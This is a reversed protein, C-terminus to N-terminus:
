AAKGPRTTELPSGDPKTPFFTYSLTIEQTNKTEQDKILEPDVYYTVAFELSQGPKLTQAQFCFCQLKMFYPGATEPLVNYAAMGTLTKDSLNTVRYFALGTKGIKVTQTSEVPEFKWPLDNRVNADFRVTITRDLVTSAETTARRTSGDFGTAACFMKYLPVAAYAAGIMLVALGGAWLGVKLKKDM